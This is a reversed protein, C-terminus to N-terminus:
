ESSISKSNLTQQINIVTDHMRQIENKMTFLLGTLLILIVAIAAIAKDRDDSKSYM